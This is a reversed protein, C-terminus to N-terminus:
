MRCRRIRAALCRPLRETLRIVTSYARTFPPSRTLRSSVAQEAWTDRPETTRDPFFQRGSGDTVTMAAHSRMVAPADPRPQWRPRGDRRNGM